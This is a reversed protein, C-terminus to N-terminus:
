ANIVNLFLFNVTLRDGSIQPFNPRKPPSETTDMSGEVTEKRKDPGDQHKRKRSKTKVPKFEGDEASISSMQQSDSSSAAMKVHQQAFPLQRTRMRLAGAIKSTLHVSSFAVTL